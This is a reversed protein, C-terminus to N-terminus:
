RRILASIVLWLPLLVTGQKWCKWCQAAVPLCIFAFPVSLAQLFDDLVVNTTAPPNFTSVLTGVYGQAVPAAAAIASWVTSDYQYVRQREMLGAPKADDKASIPCCM